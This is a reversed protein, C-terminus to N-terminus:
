TGFRKSEQETLGTNLESPNRLDTHLLYIFFTLYIGIRGTQSSFLSKNSRRGGGRGGETEVMHGHSEQQIVLKANLYEHM